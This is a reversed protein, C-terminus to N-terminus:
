IGKKRLIGLKTIELISKKIILTKNEFLIRTNVKILKLVKIKKIKKFINERINQNKILFLNM